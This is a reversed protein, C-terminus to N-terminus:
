GPDQEQVAPQAMFDVGVARAIKLVADFRPVAGPALIKYLRTRGIGSAAAVKAMGRAHAIQRLAVLVREPDRRELAVTVFQAAHEPKM